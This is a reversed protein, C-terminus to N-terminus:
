EFRLVYSCSIFLHEIVLLCNIIPWDVRILQNGLSWKLFIDYEYYELLNDIRKQLFINKSFFLIEFNWCKELFLTCLQMSSPMLFEMGFLFDGLYQLIRTGSSSLCLWGQHSDHHGREDVCLSLLTIFQIM